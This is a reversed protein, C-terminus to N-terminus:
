QLSIVQATGCYSANCFKEAKENRVDKYDLSCISCFTVRVQGIILMGLIFMPIVRMLRCEFCKAVLVHSIKLAPREATATNTYASDLRKLSRIEM